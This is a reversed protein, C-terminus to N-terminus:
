SEEFDIHPDVEGSHALVEVIAEFGQEVAELVGLGDLVVVLAHLYHRLFENVLYVGPHLELDYLYLCLPSPRSKGNSM